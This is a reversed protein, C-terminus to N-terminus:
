WRVGLSLGVRFDDYQGEAGARTGRQDRGLYYGKLWEGRLVVELGRRPTWLWRLGPGLEVLNDFYNGRTDWSLNQVAYIDFGLRSGLQFARFGEHAQGYGIWNAYRKYYSFDAGADAFWAVRWLFRSSKGAPPEAQVNESLAPVSGTTPIMEETALTHLVTGPGWSKFGYVGTEFDETWDGNDRRGLLDKNFGGSAYFYLYETEFPQARLGLSLAAFNDAIVSRQGGIKSRTDVSFRFEQFPQLWRAHPIFTGHRIFGAGVLTGFRGLYEGSSYAEGWYWRELNAVPPLARLRREAERAAPDDRHQRKIEQLVTAADQWRQARILLDARLLALETSDAHTLALRETLELARTTQGLAQLAYLRQMQMLWPLDGRKELEDVAAAVERHQQRTALEFVHQEALQTASPAAVDQLRRAAEAAVPTGPFEQQLRQLLQVADARRDNRALLESRLLALDTARPHAAALAEAKALAASYEGLAELAYLRQLQLTWDPEERKELEDIATVVARNNQRRAQDFIYELAKNKEHRVSQARIRRDAEFAATTGPNDRAVQRLIAAAPEWKDQQELLGARLLALETDEPHTIALDGARYLARGLQGLAQWAYIRQRELPFSLESRKELEDAAEVVERHRGQRALEFVREEAELHAIAQLRRGAEAAAAIATNDREIQRWISVAEVRRGIQALLDARLLALDPAAPYDLALRDALELAPAYQALSQLAYLRQLALAFSLPRQKELDNVATIVEEHKFQGALEFVRREAEFRKERALDEKLRRNAEAAAAALEPNSSKELEVFVREAEAPRQLHVYEVGLRFYATEHNPKKRRVGELVRAAEDHQKLQSLASAYDLAAVLDDPNQELYQKFQAAAGEYQEQEYLEYAQIKASGAAGAEVGRAPQGFWLVGIIAICHRLNRM